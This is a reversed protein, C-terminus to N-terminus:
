GRYDSSNIKGDYAAQNLENYMGKVLDMKSEDADFFSVIAKNHSKNYEVGFDQSGEPLLPETYKAMKKLNTEFRRFVPTPINELDNLDIPNAM